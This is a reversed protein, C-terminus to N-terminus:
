KEKGDSKVVADMRIRLLGFEQTLRIIQKSQLSIKLTMGFCLIMLFLISFFFLVNSPLVTGLIRSVQYLVLPFAALFIGLGFAVIWLVGLSFSLEGKNSKRNVFWILLSFVIICFLRILVWSPQQAQM